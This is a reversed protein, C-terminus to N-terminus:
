PLSTYRRPKRPQFAHLACSGRGCKSCRLRKAIDELQAEWGFLRGLTHPEALREHRCEACRLLLTYQGFEDGLKDVRFDVPMPEVLARM